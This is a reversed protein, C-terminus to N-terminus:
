RLLLAEIEAAADLKLQETFVASDDGAAAAKQQAAQWAAPIEALKKKFFLLAAEEGGQKAAARLVATFIDFVNRAIRAHVAEDFRAQQQLETEKQRQRAACQQLAAALENASIM